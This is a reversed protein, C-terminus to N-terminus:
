LAKQCKDLWRTPYHGYSQALIQLNDVYLSALHQHLRQPISAKQGANVASRLNAQIADASSDVGLFDLIRTLLIEPESEIQDFFGIFLQDEPYKELWCDITRLYDGRLRSARSNFHAIYDDETVSTPNRRKTTALDMKAHSWARDIPDRLLLILKARPMLNFIHSIAAPGLCSYAPTIEGTMRETHNEFLSSYWADDWAGLIFKLEWGLDSLRHIQLRERLKDLSFRQITRKLHNGAVGRRPTPNLFGDSENPPFKRDFYHLEKLHPLWIDRHQSLMAHLWTTGSKQAGIGLFDPYM